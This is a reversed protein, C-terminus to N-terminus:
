KSAYRLGRNFQHDRTVKIDVIRTQRTGEGDMRQNDTLLRSTVNLGM